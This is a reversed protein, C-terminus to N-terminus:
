ELYSIKVPEAGRLAVLMTLNGLLGAGLLWPMGRRLRGLHREPEQFLGTRDM